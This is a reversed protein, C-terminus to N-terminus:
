RPGIPDATDAPNRLALLVAEDFRRGEGELVEMLEIFGFLGGACIALALLPAALGLRLPPLRPEPM